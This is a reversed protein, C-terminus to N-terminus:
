FGKHLRHLNGFNERRRRELIVTFGKHLRHLKGFNERELISYIM